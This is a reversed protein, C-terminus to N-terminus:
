GPTLADIRRIMEARIADLDEESGTLADLWKRSDAAKARVKEGAARIAKDLTEAYRIDDVAERWGEFQITDVPKGVAPYAFNHDRYHGHDFDDWSSKDDATSYEYNIGGDYGAARLALGYNRRYTAPQEVGSQPNAYSVVRFGNAHIKEALEPRLRGAVNPLDLIDGVAEFYSDGCAVFVKAGGRHVAEWAPRESRLRDGSAEDVGHFYFDRGNRAAWEQAQRAYETLKALQEDGKQHGVGCVICIYPTGTVGYKKQIDHIRQATAFPSPDSPLPSPHIYVASVNCGHEIQDRLEQEVVAFFAKEEEITTVKPMRRGYYLGHLMPSPALKWEPVRVSVPVHGCEGRSDRLTIRGSYTGPEADAPIRFNIWFQRSEFAPVDIPQLAKSDEPIPDFHFTNKRAQTDLEILQPNRLLLESLLTTRGQYITGAGSAYWCKVHYPDVATPALKKGKQTTLESIDLRLGELDRVAFISLSASEIEGRCATTQLPGGVEAAAPVSWPLVHENRIAPRVFHVLRAEPFLALLSSLAVLREGRDTRAQFNVDADTWRWRGNAEDAIRALIREIVAPDPKERPQAAGAASSFVLFGFKGPRGHGSGTPNWLSNERKEGPQKDLRSRTLNLGWREGLSPTPGFSSFPIRLELTWADATRGVAATSPLDAMWDGNYCDEVTGGANVIYQFYRARTAGPDLFVEVCDDYWTKEPENRIVLNAVDPEFAKFGFYLAQNDYVVRCETRYEAPRREHGIVFQDIVPADRWLVEDLRGDLTPALAIRQARYTPFEEAALAPSDLLSGIALVLVIHRM